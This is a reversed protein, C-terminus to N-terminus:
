GITELDNNVEITYGYRDDGSKGDSILTKRFVLEDGPQLKFEAAVEAPININFFKFPAGMQIVKETIM